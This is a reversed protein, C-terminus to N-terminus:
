IGGKYLGSEWVVTSWFIYDVNQKYGKSCLLSAIDDYDTPSILFFPMECLVDSLAIVDKGMFDNIRKIPDSDIYSIIRINLERFIKTVLIANNGTGWIYIGKRKSPIMKDLIRKVDDLKYEYKWYKIMEIHKQKNWEVEPHQNAPLNYGRKVIEERFFQNDMHDFWHLMMPLKEYSEDFYESICFQEAINVPAIKLKNGASSIVMDEQEYKAQKKVEEDTIFELFSSVKRLSVGGCGVYWVTEYQSRYWFNGYKWPAAIYDYELNCFYDINDYFVFGDLQYLLIYRYDIFKDYFVKQLCLENYKRYSSFWIDDFKVAKVGLTTYYKEDVSKPMAVFIDRKEGFVELISKLSIVEFENLINKHTIIVFAVTKKM